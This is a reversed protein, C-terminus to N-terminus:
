FPLRKDLGQAHARIGLTGQGAAQLHRPWRALPGRLAQHSPVCAMATCPNRLSCDIVGRISEAQVTAFGAFRGAADGHLNGFAVELALDGRKALRRAHSAEILQRRQHRHGPDQWRPTSTLKTPPLAPAVLAKVLAAKALKAACALM